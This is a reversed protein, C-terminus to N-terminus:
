VKSHIPHKAGCALCHLFDLRGEKTIETDPKGCEACLVFDKAYQEIKPNIKSSSVKKNLTLREGDLTGAAALEKLIFKQLHEVPRRLSSAVQVFNTLVTKKGEFRGEIKPVEFREGGKEVVKVTEYAENLLDEYNTM